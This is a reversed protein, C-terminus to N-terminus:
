NDEDVKELQTISLPAMACKCITDDISGDPKFVESGIKGEDVLRKVFYPLFNAVEVETAFIEQSYYPFVFNRGELKKKLQKNFLGFDKDTISLEDVVPRSYFCIAQLFGMNSKQNRHTDRTLIGGLEDLKKNIDM